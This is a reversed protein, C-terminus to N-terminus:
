TWRITQWSATCRRGKPPRPLADLMAVTPQYRSDPGADLAVVDVGLSRLTNRYAPYGPRTMAVQDGADFAALAALLFGGSSGTTIVVEAPDVDM